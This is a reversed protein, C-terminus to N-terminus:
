IRDSGPSPNEWVAAVQKKLTSRLADSERLTPWLFNPKHDSIVQATDIGCQDGDKNWVGIDPNRIHKRRIAIADIVNYRKRIRRKFAVINLDQVAPAIKNKFEFILRANGYPVTVVKIPLEVGVADEKIAQAAFHEATREYILMPKDMQHIAILCFFGSSFKLTKQTTGGPISGPVCPNETWQEVLQALTGNNLPHLYLIM